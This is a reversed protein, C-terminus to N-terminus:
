KKLGRIYEIVENFAVLNIGYIINQGLKKSLVLNADKLIKLHYSLSSKSIDFYRHIQGATLEGNKLIILIERRTPHSLAECIRTMNSSEKM